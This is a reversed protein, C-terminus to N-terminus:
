PPLRRELSCWRDPGGLALTSRNGALAANHAARVPPDVGRMQDRTRHAPAAVREAHDRQAPERVPRIIAALEVQQGAELRRPLV